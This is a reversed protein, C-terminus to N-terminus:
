EKRENLIKKLTNLGEIIKNMEEPTGSSLMEEYSEIIKEHIGSYLEKMKDTVNVYVTRRDEENRSRVVYGQKELRDVIGSVTSNSLHVKESLESIKMKGQHALTGVVMTQPMTLGIDEFTKRMCHKVMKNVESFLRAAEAKDNNTYM